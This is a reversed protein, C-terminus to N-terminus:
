GYVEELLEDSLWPQVADDQYPEDAKSSRGVSDITGAIPNWSALEPAESFLEEFVSEEVVLSGIMPSTETLRVWAAAADLLNPDRISGLPYSITNGPQVAAVVEQETVTSPALVEVLADSESTSVMAQVEVTSPDSSVAAIVPAATGYQLRWIDLDTGDVNRDFNADGDSHVATGTAGFGRQWRLFDTGSVTGDVNFDASETQREIAGIDIRSFVTRDFGNGRQDFDPPSTFGPNGANIAPSSPPLTHTLTPGGNDALTTDLISALATPNTGDSTATIDSAGAALGNLAQATTRSGDGFLNYADLNATGGNNFNVRIENGVPATNGAIISDNINLVSSVYNNDFQYIAGGRNNASNATLTSHRITVSGAYHYIAGGAFNASNGSLTSNTITTSLGGWIAGGSSTASNDSLTSDTILVPREALVFGGSGAMNGSATSGTVVLNGSNVFIAGGEGSSNAYNNSITSGNIALTGGGHFFAGGTGAANGSVVSDNITLPVVSYFAGGFSFTANDSINSSTITLNERNFIAGGQQGSPLDGGTLTLGSIEVAMFAGTGDNVNFIRYGDHTNFTNDAGDGADITLGGALATADISVADTIAMEGLADDMAITGGDLGAAFTITDAGPNINALEIAERLSFNLASYVGDLEDALTDVVLNLSQVEYAGIDITGSERVFPAGRQDNAPPSAVASNGADIAPSGAFLAHTLTPGGNDALTTNLIAALATPNTGDSTATIDNVGALIGSLAQATTQSNDGILNYVNVNIAGSSFRIENGVSGSNGSIITHDLMVVGTIDLGGGNSSATNNTITNHHITASDSDIRIAGGDTASNGSLTSNTLILTGSDYIAGGTDSASNGSLTSNSITLVGDENYIGGGDHNSTNGSLTSDIITLDDDSWIGAGSGNGATTHNNSITSGTITLDGRSWIGGGADYSTRTASNNTIVMGTLSTTTGSNIRIGGGREESGGSLTLGSIENTGGSILLVRSNGGADVTITDAGLGTVTVDDTITLQGLAADLNITGSLGSDFTIANASANANTIEIAERLSLDGNSFDSDSEDVLTSVIITFPGAGAREVAGIDIRGDTVRFNANGRQDFTPTNGVGAVAAPDGANVALSGASPLHTETPGGNNQLSGLNAGSGTINGGNDTITAGTTDEILSYSLNFNGSLDDRGDDASNGAVITNELTASGAIGGGYATIPGGSGAIATNNVITSNRITLSLFDSWIGGGTQSYNESFNTATNGSITSGTILLTGSYQSIGGGGGNSSAEGSNGSITSDIIEASGQYLYIGGGARSTNIAQNGSVTSEVVTLKSSSDAKYIGGGGASFEATNNTITTRTITLNERTFIAGGADFFGGSDIRGNQLTLGSLFVDLDAANGDDINFIRSSNDGDITLQSQGLGAITVSDTIELETGDLTITDGSLSGDFTITDAGRNANALELAERLSFNGSSYDGDVVDDTTDVVLNLSQVEYAGIDITGSERVFLAGRQDNAPPAAVSPNGADIAPSGAVLAHTLTPGGNAALTTDLIAALATPNTGNSTASIDSSGVSAGSLAQATTQSNDGILNYDNLNVTGTGFIENASSGSNGSILTHSLTLSSNTWIGGGMNGSKNGTITSHEVITTAGSFANVIGGGSDDATNNSITSGVITVTGGDRNFIAGGYYATNGSLTSDTISLVGHNYIGGGGGIIGSATNGSITSGVITLEGQNFIGGGADYNNVAATNETIVMGTLTTTVGANNRIGGGRAFNGGSITLGSIDNTGGTVRLVRSNGGADVTLKDAGLGTVTVDDSITLQGLAADLTITGLLGGDFTVTDAGPNINALELAERLSFNGPSTDGDSEDVLTDVVLSLSQVEYAGIDITGSERVFPAGRQDNAPPSAVAPNGSDIAPSGAVLAHTQTAGGNDALTTDLISVLATSTIADSTALIDNAGAAVGDLAQATTQSSDGILNYDNLNVTGADNYIENGGTATNGSILTHRLTLTSNNWIGGGEAGSQNGTITSHEVITTANVTSSIAGAINDATNNSITSGVITVTGGDRNIIGGSYNASNGSITSDTISVVGNNYIGGGGGSAGSATNGSITSRLITLEGENFIGGGSDFMNVTATNGTIVMETLTTVGGDIRIGGGRGVNGGSLTLGSIENTGGSILLVRSNGGADVALTDAGLGTVTLDDSITLQGLAADLNITGSLGTDFTVTDAGPNANAFELAERLSLDGSSTYGDSEDVLTDVVLSLSQVEYAGIDIVGNERVFPAGRQDNTPPPAVAPNGSDIAPSGAVLAHTQTPGGNDALTTDLISALATPTTGDSTALIDSAGAVVGALAQATTQSGDGILNYDNLNATGGNFIENAANTSTNGSVITHSLTLNSSFNVFIAGGQNNSSNGTITSHSITLSANLFLRIAGGDDDAHNNSITSNTIQATSGSIWIAGGDNGQGGSGGTASNDNITSDSITVTGDVSYLAGAQLMASNGSITSGTISLTGGYNAVAAGGGRPATTTNSTLTSGSITLDGRNYIGGGAQFSNVTATNGSIVTDTLTTTAGTNNRIGGGRDASGGSITLGSIENTGGSILLVRSNGGADVTITDAGLGTVTVDDSITLQGLAVDLSITGSLDGDFTVADAGPKANAIELAERLSLDGPSTDGDSEDILTDVVFVSPLQEIAGIDIAAGFVRPYGAGRQDENPPGAFAPNGGDLAPSGTVLAHTFTPGGNDALTTDLISALATPASGNSTATIDNAGAVAGSLAQATTRSSDGILNFDNLNLTGGNRSIEAGTAASNGSVLTHGVALTGGDLYIGGGTGALNDTITSHTVVTSAFASLIGGGYDASSNGSITSNTVSNTGFAIYLGGGDDGASNGTITSDIVTLSGGNANSNVGGGDRNSSNGTITSGIVTLDEANWIGAGSGNGATTQNNSITSSTITLDGDNWIGGGADYTGTTATNGTILMDTLTTTAGSDNRIGGGRGASGGSITLGRIDNVGGTIRLVRSNGGADITLQDAGLGNVSVSTSIELQGLVADLNITGGGLSVDFEILDNTGFAEGTDIQSEEEVTLARGLAANADGGNNVLLIAERLTLVTDSITDDQDTNATLVALVRREELPEIRLRRDNRARKMTRRPHSQCRLWDFRTMRSM